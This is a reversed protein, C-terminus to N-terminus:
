TRKKLSFTYKKLSRLFNWQCQWSDSLCMLTILVCFFTLYVSCPARGVEQIPAPFFSPCPSSSCSWGGAYIQVLSLHPIELLTLLPASYSRLLRRCRCQGRPALPRTGPPPLLAPGAEAAQSIKKCTTTNQTVAHYHYQKSAGVAM